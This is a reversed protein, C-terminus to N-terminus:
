MKCGSKSRTPKCNSCQVITKDLTKSEWPIESSKRKFANSLCPVPVTDKQHTVPLANTGRCSFEQGTLDECFGCSEGTQMVEGWVWTSWQKLIVSVRSVGGWERRCPKQFTGLIGKHRIIKFSLMPDFLETGLTSESSTALVSTVSTGEAAVVSWSNMRWTPSSPLAWRFVKSLRVSIKSATTSQRIGM